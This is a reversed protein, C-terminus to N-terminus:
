KPKSASFPKNSRKAAAIGLGEPITLGTDARDHPQNSGLGASRETLRHDHVAATTGVARVPNATRVHLASLRSSTQSLEM